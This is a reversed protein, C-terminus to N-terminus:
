VIHFRHLEWWWSVAIGLGIAAAPLHIRRLGPRLLLITAAVGALLGFPNAATAAGLHGRLSAKM